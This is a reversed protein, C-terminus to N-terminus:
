QVTVEQKRWKPNFPNKIRMDDWYYESYSRCNDNEKKVYERCEEKDFFVSDISDQEDYAMRGKAWVVYLEIYESELANKIQKKLEIMNNRTNQLPYTYYLRVFNQDGRNDIDVELISNQNCSEEKTM